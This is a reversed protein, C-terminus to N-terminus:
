ARTRAAPMAHLILALRGASLGDGQPLLDDPQCAALGRQVNAFHRAAEASCGDRCALNGLAFHALVFGPDLFIARRLAERAADHRGLEILVVARLYHAAPALKDALIWHDCWALAQAHKGENALARALRAPDPREPRPPARRSPAALPPDSLAPAAPPAAIAAPTADKRYLVAGPFNVTTFPSFREQSTESPSVALWGGGVLAHRLRAVVGQAQSPTFYMLVNRCFVVDMASTDTEPSPYVDQALNLYRFNVLKRLYAAIVHKGDARREFYTQKLGAPANRFSWDGYAGAAATELAGPNIDTATITVRWDALDPLLRHLLIALSYAEEGTACGASWLRLRQDGGRRQRILDPLVQRSMADLVQPDRFFYTEGITLHRALLQQRPTDLRGTLLQRVLAGPAPLGLERAAQAVGRELDAHRGAPFHLGMRQGVLHGLQAWEEPAVARSSM